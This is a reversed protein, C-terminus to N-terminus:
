LEVRKWKGMIRSTGGVHKLIDVGLVALALPRTEVRSYIDMIQMSTGREGQMQTEGM